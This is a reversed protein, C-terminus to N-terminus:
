TKKLSEHLGEVRVSVNWHDTLETDTEVRGVEDGLAELDYWFVVIIFLLRSSSTSEGDGGISDVAARLEPASMEMIPWNPTM